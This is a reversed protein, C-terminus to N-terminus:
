RACARSRSAGSASARSATAPRRRAGGTSEPARPRSGRRGRPHRHRGPRDPHRPWTSASTRPSSACRRSPWCASAGRARAADDPATARARRREDAAAARGRAVAESSPRSRRCSRTPRRATAARGVSARRAPTRRDAPGYGVLVLSGSRAPRAPPQPVLDRRVAPSRPAGPDRDPARDAAAGAAAACRSRRDRHDAHRGPRDRGRRRAAGHRHRRVAVPLEVLSKATEIEVVIDNIKISTASRSRGPSSRPRPSARASTPCSSSRVDDRRTGESRWRRDVADLVRDLDPLYDEEIRPPPIRRTSGASGCCRRRSALLLVGRHDPRRDRRGHRPQRAGRPRRRARGTRRVSDYVPAMDLPSLTRLDIVELSRARARGRGRRGGPLDEGDPRLRAATADTGASSSARPQVAPRPTATEDLEAKDAHYQRKPELFIM